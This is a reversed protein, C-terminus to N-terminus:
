ELVASVADMTPLDASISTIDENLIINGEAVDTMKNEVPTDALLQTRDGISTLSIRYIDDGGMGGERNSALFGMNFGSDVYLSFDDAATNFPNGLNEPEAWGNETKWTMYLDLGGFGGHGESAFFLVGSEHYYPYSDRGSTNINAGLNAPETWNKGDFYSVYLDSQGFNGDRDSAFFLTKGDRSISPQAFSHKTSKFEKIVEVVWKGDMFTAKSIILMNTKTAEMWNLTAKRNTSTFYFTNNRVPTAPGNNHDSDYNVALPRVSRHASAPDCTYMKYSSEGLFENRENFKNRDSTFM